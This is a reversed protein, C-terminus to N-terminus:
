WTGGKWSPLTSIRSIAAKSIGFAKALETGPRTKLEEQIAAARVEAIFKSQKSLQEQLAAALAAVGMPGGYQESWGPSANNAQEIFDQPTVDTTSPKLQDTM